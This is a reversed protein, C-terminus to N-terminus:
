KVELGVSLHGRKKGCHDYSAKSREPSIAAGLSTFSKSQGQGVEVCSAEECLKVDGELGGLM